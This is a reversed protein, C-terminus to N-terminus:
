GGEGTQLTLHLGQSIVIIARKIAARALISDRYEKVENELFAVVAAREEDATRPTM